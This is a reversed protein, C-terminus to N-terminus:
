QLVHAADARYPSRLRLRRARVHRGGVSPGSFLTEVMDGQGCAPEWVDTGASLKLFRMLAVTVEPPTPYLDSAKRAKAGNGSMIPSARISNM